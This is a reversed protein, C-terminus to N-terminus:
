DMIKFEAGHMNEPYMYFSALNKVLDDYLKVISWNIISHTNEGSHPIEESDECQFSPRWTLMERLM